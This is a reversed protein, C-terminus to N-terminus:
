TFQLTTSHHVSNPLALDSITTQCIQVTCACFVFQVNTIFICKIKQEIRILFSSQWSFGKVYKDSVLVLWIFLHDRCSSVKEVAFWFVFTRRPVSKWSQMLKCQIFITACVQRLWKYECMGTFLYEKFFCHAFAPLYTCLHCLVFSIVFMQKHLCFCVLFVATCKGYCGVPIQKPQSDCKQIKDKNKITESKIVHKPKNQM